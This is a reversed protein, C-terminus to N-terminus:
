KIVVSPVNAPFFEVSVDTASKAPVVSQRTPGPTDAVDSESTTFSLVAATLTNGADDCLGDLLLDSGPSTARNAAATM